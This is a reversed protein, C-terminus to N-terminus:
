RRAQHGGSTGGAPHGVFQNGPRGVSTMGQYGDNMGGSPFNTPSSHSGGSGGSYGTPGGFSTEVRQGAGTNRAGGSGSTRPSATPKPAPSTTRPGAPGSTRPGAAPNPAPSTARPGAPGTTRPG